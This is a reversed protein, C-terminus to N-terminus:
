EKAETKSALAADITAYGDQGNCNCSAGRDSGWGPCREHHGVYPRVDELARTLREITAQQDKVAQKLLNVTAAIDEHAQEYGFNNSWEPSRGTVLYYAQSMAEEAEDREDILEEAERDNKAITKEAEALRSRLAPYAVTVDITWEGWAPDPGIRAEYKRDLEAIQEDTAPPTPAPQDPMPNSRQPSIRSELSLTWDSM